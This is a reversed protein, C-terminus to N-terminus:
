RKVTFRGSLTGLEVTHPGAALDRLDFSIRTDRGPALPVGRRRVEAGDVRLVAEYSGAREGVNTVLARVRVARSGSIELGSVTFLAEPGAVLDHVFVDDRRNTDGEALNASGSEFAVYRGDASISPLHASGDGEGGDPATSLRTTTGAAVDRVFVDNRGGTDGAVLESSDSYFAVEGGDATISPAFSMAGAPRGGTTVSVLESKGTGLVQVYLEGLGAGNTFAVANGGASIVPGTTEQDPYPVALRTLTGAQRDLVYADILGNTDGPTLADANSQFAVYRGDASITPERSSGAAQTGDQAVSLRRTTGEQRDRLFVDTRGNTDGPVLNAADSDFVAFRGDASFRPPGSLGDAPTGDASVSLLETTGTQRDHVFADALGNTDNPVLNGAGSNFGVFRGDASVTPSLSFADALGGGSPVSVRTTERTRRDTAFIDLEGNTDEDDALNSAFSAYVVVNGDGSLEPWWAHHNGQRGDSGLSLRETRPRRPLVVDASARGRGVTVAVPASRSVGAAHASIRHEGIPVDEIRYRGSADTTATLVDPVDLVTVTAGPVGTGTPEYTVRGSITSWRTRELELRVDSLRDAKVAFPKSTTRYGFRSLTLTHEGAPLRLEFRGNADTKTGRGDARAVQVGGLPRRTRGDTVVGRVGSTLAAEAVAAYADIRGQGVRPNPRPGYRDDSVATGALIEEAAAVTLGPRAELMLAVTGSVHPTAMSTGNLSAYQGGPMASLVDVGPASVDPVVYSDPWEAPADFWDGRKVTGGCSFDPVDDNVDTAGVAVAEYVNGPSGSGGPSCENGIAFAPFAGARYINRAPEILEDAYGEAGLSMSVVDAPEGAPTGDAGYPALAWQMGAVVQALTGRGGPIVLGAMLEAGPAVGIQTGSADGGAITGAVHTGHYASDHPESAVPKGEADFEIWGGPAKPDAADASVLKGKLDPHTVDIGTDLVAVRVGEGTLGRESHVRDAGIKAVGWTTAGASLRAPARGPEPATLTFNPIIREVLDLEALAGLTGPTARVLIMNKLWFTNVVQDGRSRVFAAVPDQVPEAGATLTKRAEAGSAVPPPQQVTRLVVVAELRGRATKLQEALKADIKSESGPGATVAQAAAPSAVITGFTGSTMLLAPLVAALLRRGASRRSTLPM